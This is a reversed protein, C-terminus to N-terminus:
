LFIRPFKWVRVGTFKEFLHLSGGSYVKGKVFTNTTSIGLNGTELVVERLTTGEGFFTPKRASM